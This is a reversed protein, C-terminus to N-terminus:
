AQEYWSEDTDEGTKGSSSLRTPLPRDSQGHRQRYHWSPTLGQLQYLYQLGNGSRRDLLMVFRIADVIGMNEVLVQWGEEILEKESWNM